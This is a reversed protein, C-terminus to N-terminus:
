GGSNNNVRTGRDVLMVTCVQKAEVPHPASLIATGAPIMFHKQNDLIEQWIRLVLLGEFEENANCWVDCRRGREENTTGDGSMVRAVILIKAARVM